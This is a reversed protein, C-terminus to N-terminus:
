SLRETKENEMKQVKVKGYKTKRDKRRQSRAGTPESETKAECQWKQNETKKAWSPRTLVKRRQKRREEVLKDTKKM